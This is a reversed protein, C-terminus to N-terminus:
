TQQATSEASTQQAEAQWACLLMVLAIVCPPFLRSLGNLAHMEQFEKWSITALLFRVFIAAIPVAFPVQPLAAVDPGYPGM